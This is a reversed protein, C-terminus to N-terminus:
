TTSAGNRVGLIWRALRKQEANAKKFWDQMPCALKTAYLTAMFQATEWGTAATIWRNKRNLHAGLMNSRSLTVGLYKIEKAEKVLM